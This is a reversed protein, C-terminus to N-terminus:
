GKFSCLEQGDGPHKFGDKTTWFLSGQSVRQIHSTRRNSSHSCTLWRPSGRDCEFGRDFGLDAAFVLTGEDGIVLLSRPPIILFIVMIMLVM